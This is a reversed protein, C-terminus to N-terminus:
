FWVVIVRKELSKLKREWFGRNEAIKQWRGPLERWRGSVKKTDRRLEWGFRAYDRSREPKEEGLRGMGPWILGLELSLSARASVRPDVMNKQMNQGSRETAAV